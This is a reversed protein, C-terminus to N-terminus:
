PVLNTQFENLDVNLSGEFRLSATISSVVQAILRNLNTFSPQSVNLRNKCIDYIAENDVQAAVSLFWAWLFFFRAWWLRATPMNSHQIHPSCRTTRSLWLPLCSRHPICASNSSLNRAMIQLSVSSFSPVSALAPVVVSPTSSSSARSALATTRWGVSRTWPQISLNKGLPITAAHMQLDVHAGVRADQNSSPPPYRFLFHFACNNAADEKGTIMSEPHFLARMPGTKVENIVGPELDVYLSRPVYKGSGTESFFTSHGVYQEGIKKELVRGDLQTVYDIRSLRFSQNFFAFACRSWTRSHLTGRTLAYSAVFHSPFLFTAKCCANGIQVGAQGVHISIVERM